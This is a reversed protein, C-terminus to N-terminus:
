YHGNHPHSFHVPDKSGAWVLKGAWRSHALIAALQQAASVDVAGGPYAQFEHNSGAGGYARPKAAPRVGSDYIRKQEADSRYGSNVSGSWGHKRAYELAPAIWAAVPKGDFKVVGAPLKVGKQRAQGVTEAISPGDPAQEPGASPGPPGQSTDSGRLTELLSLRASVPTGESGPAPSQETLPHFGQPLAPGAAFQPAQIAAAVPAAQPRGLLSSLLGSFDGAAGPEM